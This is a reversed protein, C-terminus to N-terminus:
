IQKSNEFHTSMMYGLIPVKSCAIERISTYASMLCLAGPKFMSALHIAPGTGISRGFIVIDEESIGTEQLIYRYVYECDEKIKDASCGGTDRHVGYGPYEIAM